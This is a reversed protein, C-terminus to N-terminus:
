TLELEVPETAALLHTGDDAVTVAVVVAEYGGPELPQPDSLSSDCDLFETGFDLTLRTGATASVTTAVDSGPNHNVVVGDRLVLVQTFVLGHIAGAVDLQAFGQMAEGVPRPSRIEDLLALDYGTAVEPDPWTAGCDLDAQVSGPPAITSPQSDGGGITVPWPGGQAQEMDGFDGEAGVFTIAAYAQYDGAPLWDGTECSPSMQIGTQMSDGAAIGMWYSGEAGLFVPDEPDPSAVVRGDGDTVVLQAMAVQGQIPEDHNNTVSAMWGGGHDPLAEEPGGDVVLASAREPPAFTEGCGPFVADSFDPLGADTGGDDGTSDTPEPEQTSASPEPDTSGPTAPPPQCAAVAALATAALFTTFLRRRRREGGRTGSTADTHETM